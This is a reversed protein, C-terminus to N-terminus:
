LSCHPIARLSRLIAKFKEWRGDRLCIQYYNAVGTPVGARWNALKWGTGTSLKEVIADLVARRRESPIGGPAPPFLHAVSEWEADTMAWGVPGKPIADARLASAALQVREERFIVESPQEGAWHPPIDLPRIKTVTMTSAFLKGGILQGGFAITAEAAPLTISCRGRSAAQYVSSWARKASPYFYVWRFIEATPRNKLNRIGAAKFGINATGDQQIPTCVEALGSPNFAFQFTKSSPPFLAKIFLLAPALIDYSGYRFAFVDHQNDELRWRGCVELYEAAGDNRWDALNTVATIKTPGTIPMNLAYLLNKPWLDVQGDDSVVYGALRGQSRTFSQLWM